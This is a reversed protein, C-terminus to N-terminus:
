TQHARRVDFRWAVLLVAVAALRACTNAALVSTWGTQAAYLVNLLGSAGHMVVLTAIVLGLASRDALRTAGFSLVTVALEAAGVLYVLLYDKPQLDIGVMAPIATPFATLVVAGALTIAGHVLLVVRLPTAPRPTTETM